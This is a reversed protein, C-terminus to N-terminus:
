YEPLLDPANNGEIVKYKIGKNPTTAPSRILLSSQLKRVEYTDSYHECASVKYVSLFKLLLSIRYIVSRFSLGSM